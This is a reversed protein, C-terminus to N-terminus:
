YAALVLHATASTGAASITATAALQNGRARALLRHGASTMKFFLYGLQGVGLVQPHATAIVKGAHVIRTSTQCPAAASCGALVGGLWGHSVFESTGVFRLASSPDASRRPGAGSTSFGTLKLTRSATKGFSDRVKITVALQHHPARALLARGTPSLKFFALGGAEAVREPGTSALMTKGATVVTTLQCPATNLCGVPVGALGARPVFVSGGFIAVSAPLPVPASSGLVQGAAGLAQVAFYPFANDTVVKRTGASVTQVGFGLSIPSPGAILQWTVVGTAGPWSPALVVSGNAAPSVTLSPAPAPAPAPGAASSGSGAAATAADAYDNDINITVGQYTENHGGRYQHLRQHDVWGTSPLFPDSSTALGNWDAVWIDDPEAYGTALQAALDRIGSAGSSYVGSRYGSAHLQATWAALFKLVAATTTTGPTYAEMDFYLPNGTGLGVAQANAVADRAAAAGESAASSPSIAACGCSNGPAQLGVYTPILHWGAASQQDVWGATLNPQSCAQNAGGIYVGVARYPSVAWATMQASSPTNCPDFGLGTYVQGPRSPTAAVRAQATVRARHVIAARGAAAALAHHRSGASAAAVATVSTVGLARQIVAPHRNWTATVLVRHRTNVLQAESGGARASPAPLIAGAAGDALSAHSGVPSISIAETRGAAVTAPCQQDASPRGLYVAHRDFRVCAHLDRALRYVPWSAPVALRYGHYSVTKSAAASASGPLACAAILAVLAAALALRRAQVLAHRFHSAPHVPSMSRLSVAPGPDGRRASSTAPLGVRYLSGDMVTPAM